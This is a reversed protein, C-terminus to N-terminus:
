LYGQSLLYLVVTLRFWLWRRFDLCLSTEPNATRFLGNIKNITIDLLL